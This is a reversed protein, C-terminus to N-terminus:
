IGWVILVIWGIVLVSLLLLWWGARNIDHLRRVGLALSPILTVIWFLGDLVGPLGAFASIVGLVLWGIITFM